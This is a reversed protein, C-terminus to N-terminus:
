YPDMFALVCFCSVKKKRRSRNQKEEDHVGSPFFTMFFSFFTVQYYQAYVPAASKSFNLGWNAQDEGLYNVHFVIERPLWDPDRFALWGVGPYVLGDTLFSFSCRLFFVFQSGICESWAGGYLLKERKDSWCYVLLSLFNHVHWECKHGSVNISKVRSLRFDWELDPWLFPAVFGGSAADVHLYVDYGRTARLDDLLSNLEIM